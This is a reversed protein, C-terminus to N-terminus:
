ENAIGGVIDALMGDAEKELANLTAIIDDMERIEAPKYFYKTFSIEYRLFFSCTAILRLAVKRLVIYTM